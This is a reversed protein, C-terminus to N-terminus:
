FKSTEGADVNGACPIDWLGPFRKKCMARKQVLLEGKSNYGRTWAPKHYFGPNESHCETKPKIGLYKGTYSRDVMIGKYDKNKAMEIWTKISNELIENPKSVTVALVLKNVKEPTNIALYQAIM